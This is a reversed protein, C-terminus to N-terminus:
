YQTWCLIRALAGAVAADELGEWAMTTGAAVSTPDAIFAGLRDRTWVGGASKLTESYGEFGTSAVEAGCIQHLSPGSLHEEPEFGHCNLCANLVGATAERRPADAIAQIQGRMQSIADPAKNARYYIIQLNDTWIAFRGDPMAQMDRTRVGTSVPEVVIAREDVSHVRHMEGKFGGILVDGDWAPDFGDLYLAAGPGIAPVFSVVPLDFGDHGQHRGSLSISRGDYHAGYSVVPHGFNPRRWVTTYNLEDGGKMGHDTVWIGGNPDVSLGQPNRLGKAIKTIEGSALDVLLLKGYDTADDQALTAGPDGRYKDDRGYAGSSWIIQSDILHALRGGAEVGEMGGVSQRLPICPEARKVIEWDDSGVRWSAAAGSPVSVRALTNTFCRRDAFWETYSVLLHPEGVADLYLLDNYRFGRFRIQSGGLEGADLQAKLEDYGNPPAAVDLQDVQDGRVSFFGGRRDLLLLGGDPGLGLGGGSDTVTLPVNVVERTLRLRGTSVDEPKQAGKFLVAGVYAKAKREARAALSNEKELEENLFWGAAGGGVFIAGILALFLFAKLLFRRKFM